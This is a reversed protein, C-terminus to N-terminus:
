FSNSNKLARFFGRRDYSIERFDLATKNKVLKIKETIRLSTRAGVADIRKEIVAAANIIKMRM